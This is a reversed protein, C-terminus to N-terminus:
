YAFVHKKFYNAFLAQKEKRLNVRKKQKTMYNFLRAMDQITFIKQLDLFDQWRGYNFVGELIAEDDLKAVDSVWWWLNKREELWSKMEESM